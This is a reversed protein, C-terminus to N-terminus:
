KRARLKENRACNVEQKAMDEPLTVGQPVSRTYGLSQALVRAHHSSSIACVALFHIHIPSPDAGPNLDARHALVKHIRTNVEADGLEDSFPYNPCSPGPYLWKTTAQQRLPQVWRSFFTQMLHVGM